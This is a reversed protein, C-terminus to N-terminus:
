LATDTGRAPAGCAHPEMPRAICDDRACVDVLAFLLANVRRPRISAAILCRCSIVPVRTRAWCSVSSALRLQHVPSARRAAPSCVPVCSRWVHSSVAAYAAFEQSPWKTNVFQAAAHAPRCCCHQWCTGDSRPPTPGMPCGSVHSVRVRILQLGQQSQRNIAQRARGRWTGSRLLAAM